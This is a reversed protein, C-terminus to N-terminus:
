HRSRQEAVDYIHRRHGIAWVRMLRGGDTEDYILRYHGFRLKCLTRLNGSLPIGPLPAESDRLVVLTKLIRERIDAPLDALDRKAGPMLEVRRM